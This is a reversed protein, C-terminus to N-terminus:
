EQRTPFYRGIVFGTFGALGNLGIVADVTFSQMDRLGASFAPFNGFTTILALISIPLLTFLALLILYGWLIVGGYQSRKRIDELDFRERRQRADEGGLLSPFETAPAPTPHARLGRRYWARKPSADSVTIM